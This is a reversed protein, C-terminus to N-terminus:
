MALRKPGQQVTVTSFMSSVNLNARLSNARRGSSSSPLKFSSSASSFPRNNKRWSLHPHSQTQALEMIPM